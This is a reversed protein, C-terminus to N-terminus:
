LRRAKDRNTTDTMTNTSIAPAAAANVAVSLNFSSFDGIVAGLNSRRKEGTHSQVVSVAFRLSRKRSFARTSTVITSVRPFSTLVSAVFSRIAAM